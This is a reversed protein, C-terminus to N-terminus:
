GAAGQIGVIIPIVIAAIVGLIACAIMIIGLIGVFKWFSKQYSLASEMESESMTDLFSAIASAYRFLYISPVLYFFSMIIYMIGMLVAPFGDLEQPLVSGLVMIAIAALLMFGVSIFGLISIFLAWPRTSRMSDVMHSTIKLDFSQKQVDNM